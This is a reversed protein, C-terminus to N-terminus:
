CFTLQGCWHTRAIPNVAVSGHPVCPRLSLMSATPCVHECAFECLPTKTASFTSQIDVSRGGFSFVLGLSGVAAVGAFQRTERVSPSYEWANESVLGWEGQDPAFVLMDATTTSLKPNIPHEQAYSYSAIFAPFEQVRMNGQLFNLQALNHWQRMEEWDRMNKLAEYGEAESVYGDKDTDYDDSGHHGSDSEEELDGGGDSGAAGANGGGGIGGGSDPLGDDPSFLSADCSFVRQLISGTPLTQWTEWTRQLHGGFFYLRRQLAVFAFAHRHELMDAPGDLGKQYLWWSAFHAEGGEAGSAAVVTSM